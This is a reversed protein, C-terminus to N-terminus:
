KGNRKAPKIMWFVTPLDGVQKNHAEGDSIKDYADKDHGDAGDVNKCTLCYQHETHM